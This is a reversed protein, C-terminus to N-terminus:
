IIVENVAEDAEQQFWRSMELYQTPPKKDSSLFDAYERLERRMTLRGYDVIEPPLRYVACPYRGIEITKQIVLFEMHSVDQFQSVIDCYWSAQVHYRFDDVSYHFKALTPTTKVDILKSGVIKDPRCRLLIGTEPDTYLYSSEAVGDAEIIARCQPHAMVSEFMLNLKKHDEASLIKSSKHDDMFGALEAKGANTRLNVEPAIVFESKLREPELCIAHMADGFDFTKLKEEDVPCRKSWEVAHPDKAFLDLGTKSIGPSAHYEANPMNLFVEKM